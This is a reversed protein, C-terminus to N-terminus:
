CESVCIDDTFVAAWLYPNWYIKESNRKFSKKKKKKVSQPIKSTEM